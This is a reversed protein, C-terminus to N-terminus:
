RSFINSLFYHLGSYTIEHENDLTSSLYHPGCLILYKIYNSTYNVGFYLHPVKVHIVIVHM